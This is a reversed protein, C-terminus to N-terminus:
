RNQYEKWVMGRIKEASLQFDREVGATEQDFLGGEGYLFAELEELIVKKIQERFKKELQKQAM